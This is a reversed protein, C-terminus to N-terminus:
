DEVIVAMGMSVFHASLSAIIDNDDQTRHREQKNVKIRVVRADVDLVYNLRLKQQKWLQDLLKM